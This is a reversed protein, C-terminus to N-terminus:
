PMRFVGELEEPLDTAEGDVLVGQACERVTAGYAGDALLLTRPWPPCDVQEDSDATALHTVLQSDEESLLKSAELEAPATYQCLSVREAGEVQEDVRDARAEAMTPPCGNADPGDLLEVSDYIREATAEDTAVISVMTGGVVKHGIWAGAPYDSEGGGEVDTVEHPPEENSALMIARADVFEVGYGRSPNLCAIAAAMTTPRQVVPVPQEGDTGACWASLSGHGWDAPVQVTADRWSETRWAAEDAGEASPDSAVTTGDGREDDGGAVQIGVPVAVVALVAAAAAAATTRRRRRLRVRAGQALGVPEGAGDAASRLSRSVEDEFQEGM